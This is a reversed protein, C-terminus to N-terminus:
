AGNQHRGRGPPVSEDHRGLTALDRWRVSELWIGIPGGVTMPLYVLLHLVLSYTLAVDREIGFVSLTIVCLYHFLGIRGPSTPIPVVASIQLVALLLLAAQAPLEIGLARAAAWNTLSALGFALLSWLLLGGSVTLSKLERVSGGVVALLHALKLRRWWPHRTEWQSIWGVVLSQFGTALGLLGLGILVALSLTWGASRLWDPLPMSLGLATIVVLLVLTVLVKEVVASWLGQVKSVGESEGLLYARAVEGVRVPIVANIVQGALFLTFAKTLRILRHDPYFMLRWRVAKVLAALVVTLLAFLLGWPQAHAITEWAGRWDVGRFALCLFGLSILSGAILRLRNSWAQRPAEFPTEPASSM